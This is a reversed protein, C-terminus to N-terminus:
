LPPPSPAVKTVIASRAGLTRHVPCKDAIEILKDGMATDVGGEVSIVREFRDIKGTRGEAAEGCDHCHETPLKGHRVSVTLRGLALQKHEAYVRLTMSTCAGLAAALYDYPGPGSDLGGVSIPEDALLRHRGATIANQFRGAGTEAVVVGDHRDARAEEKDQTVYRSAWVALVEAAYAADRSDSLLHDASDLSVFSKPHKANTFITAAHEIGVIQDQPAHMVLLAKRLNAVHHAIAQSKADEVLGRSIPFTRGALTVNAVGDREIDSLNAQFHHLVHAVDSPAGITVVAKAEPIQHAAAIVAAGGLSHGILISPAEYHSRLHDAAAVLDGVNSSFNTNQFEGESSGLGTFDFRLAAIGLSALKAAIHRAAVIDKTCTFCHAFLAYARVPGSPLDLRAALEHGLGGAFTTRITHTNM